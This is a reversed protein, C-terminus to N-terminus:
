RGHIADKVPDDEEQTEDLLNLLQTARVGYKQSLMRRKAAYDAPNFRELLDAALGPNNVATSTLTDIARSQVQKAKNRLWTSVLDVAAISPSLQGREVSRVRSAISTTTLSPDYKGNVAQATGSSGPARARSSGEAGALADVVKKIDTLDDPNDRWMEKMVSATKPDDFMDKLKRGSWRDNGTIGPASFKQQKVVEWLAGRANRLAEPSDGAARVLERAAEAPKPSAIVGRVANVTAEDGYQLYNAQASRSPTTLRRSTEDSAERAATAAERTNAANTMRDRLEPFADLVINREGLYRRLQDPRNALGRANVDSMIEDAIAGRARPDNGVERMAARFDGVRGQDTPAFRSAVASDDLAYGGGERPRLTEAIGTGPREFRDAVDRRAAKAADYQGRLGEPINEELFNDVGARFDQAVGARRSQGPTANAARIDDTLGSRLSTIERLPVEGAAPTGPRVFPQGSVDLIPSATPPTAPEVLQAPVRAEAPLFRQRDNVPLGETTAAFREALPAADVQVTAENIPKYADRVGQQAEGYREALAERMSAGRATADRLEPQIAQAATEAAAESRLAAEAAADIQATRNAELAARFQAPDGGPDLGTMRADVATENAARRTAAAGPMSADQNFAFTTLQPDQTRDGINARYGPVAEEIAAPRRLSAALPTTDIDPRHPNPSRAAQEAMQTSNNILRDAVERGVVDDVWAPNGTGAGIIRKVPGAVAGATALAGVGTMSGIFDSWFNDGHQPNGAIENAIGAGLGAATAYSGERAAVARPAVAAAELANGAIATPLSASRAMERAAQPGMRSGIGIAAGVPLANAGVEYGVRGAVREVANRAAPPEPILGFGGLASDIMESGAFPRESIPDRGILRPANNVLDVPAGALAALGRRTGRGFQTVAGGATDLVADLVSRQAPAPEPQPQPASNLGLEKRIMEGLGAGASPAQAASSAGPSNGGRRALTQERAVRAITEQPTGDPFELITGDFLEAEAM